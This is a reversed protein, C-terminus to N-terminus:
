RGGGNKIRNEFRALSNVLSSLKEELLRLKAYMTVYVVFDIAAVVGIAAVIVLVAILNAM